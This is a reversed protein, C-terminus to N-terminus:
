RPTEKSNLVDITKWIRFIKHSQYYWESFSIQFSIRTFSMWPSIRLLSIQFSMRTLKMQYLAILLKMQLSIWTLKILFLIRFMFLYKKEALSCEKPRLWVSIRWGRRCNSKNHVENWNTQKKKFFKEPFCSKSHAPDIDNIYRGCAGLHNSADIVTHDPKVTDFVYINDSISTEKTVGRYNVIFEGKTFKRGAFLGKGAFETEQVEIDTPDNELFKLHNNKDVDVPRTERRRMEFLM